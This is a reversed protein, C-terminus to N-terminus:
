RTVIVTFGAIFLTFHLTTMCQWCWAFFSVYFCIACDTSALTRFALAGNSKWIWAACVNDNQSTDVSVLSSHPRKSIPCLAADALCAWSCRINSSDLESAPWLSHKSISSEIWIWLIDTAQKVFPSHHQCLDTQWVGPSQLSSCCLVRHPLPFAMRCHYLAPLTSATCLLHYHIHTAVGSFSFSPHLPNYQFKNQCHPMRAGIMLWACWYTCCDFSMWWTKHNWLM